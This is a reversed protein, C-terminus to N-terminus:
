SDPATLKLDDKAREVSGDKQQGRCLDVVISRKYDRTNRFPPEAYIQRAQRRFDVKGGGSEGPAFDEVAPEHNGVVAFACQINRYGTGASDDGPNHTARLVLRNGVAGDHQDGSILVVGAKISGCGGVAETDKGDGA